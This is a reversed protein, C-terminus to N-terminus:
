TYSLGTSIDNSKRRATFRTSTSSNQLCPTFKRCHESRAPSCLWITKESPEYIKTVMTLWYLSGEAKVRCLVEQGLLVVSQRLWHIACGERNNPVLYNSSYYSVYPPNMQIPAIFLAKTTSSQELRKHECKWAPMINIRHAHKEEWERVVGSALKGVVGLGSNLLETTGGM